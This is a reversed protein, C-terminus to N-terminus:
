RLNMDVQKHFKFVRKLIEKSWSESKLENIKGIEKFIGSSDGGMFENKDLFINMQEIDREIVHCIAIHQESRTGDCVWILFPKLVKANTAHYDYGIEEKVERALTYSVLQELKESKDAVDEERMHGGIYLLHNQGEPSKDSTSEKKKRVVLVKTRGPNTIVLIPIPQIKSKDSEVERRPAFKIKGRFRLFQDEDLDSHEEPLDSRDVYGIKESIVDQLSKLINEAVDHNMEKLKVTSTNMLEVRKFYKEYKTKTTEATEKYSSLVSENMISGTKNTMLDAFERALSVEPEATFVYVLDIASIWRHMTIFDVLTQFHFSADGLHELNELLSFWTLADFAGRDMIVVDLNKSENAFIESLETLVSLLTWMNFFPDLKNKIPCVSARETLVRTRFKNRRLFLDLANVCSTKGSKPSGCFEIVIPRRAITAKKLKLVKQALTALKKRNERM